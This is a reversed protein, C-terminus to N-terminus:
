EEFRRAHKAAIRAAEEKHFKVWERVQKKEKDRLARKHAKLESDHNEMFREQGKFVVVVIDGSNLADDALSSLAGADSVVSFHTADCYRVPKESVMALAQQLTQEDKVIM